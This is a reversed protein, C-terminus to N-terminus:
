KVGVNYSSSNHGHMASFSCHSIEIDFDPQASLPNSDTRVVYPGTCCDVALCLSPNM